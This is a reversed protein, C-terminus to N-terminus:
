WRRQSTWPKSPRSFISWCGDAANRAAIRFYYRHVSKLGYRVIMETTNGSVVGKMTNADKWTGPYMHPGDHEGPDYDDSLQIRYQDVQIKSCAYSSYPRWRLLVFTDAGMVDEVTWPPEPCDISRTQILIHETAGGWGCEHPSDSAQRERRPSCCLAGRSLNVSWRGGM